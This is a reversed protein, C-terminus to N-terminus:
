QKIKDWNANIQEPTMSQMDELNLSNRNVKTKPPINSSTKLRDTVQSDIHTSFVQELVDLNKNTSEEDNGIFYDIIAKPLKKEDAIMLAKNTLEKRLSDTKISELEVRLKELEIDKESKNPFREKIKDELLKELNNSKWTELGKTFNSDLKPQLLKKGDEDELFKLVSDSSLETPLSLEGIFAKVEDSEKNEEIFRRIDEITMIYIEGVARLTLYAM